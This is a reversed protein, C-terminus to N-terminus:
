KETPLKPQTLVDWNNSQESWISEPGSFTEGRILIQHPLKWKLRNCFGLYRMMEEYEITFVWEPVSEQHIETYQDMKKKIFFTRPPKFM